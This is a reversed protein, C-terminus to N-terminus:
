KELSLVIHELLEELTPLYERITKWVVDHDIDFYAHILRNRMGIMSKWPVEPFRKKLRESINNAAEGIVEFERLVASLFMRDTNLDHRKKEHSFLLIAKTSDLMHIFRILDKNEM